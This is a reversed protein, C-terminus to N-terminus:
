VLENEIEETFTRVINRQKSRITNLLGERPKMRTTGEELYKAHEATNGFILQNENSAFGIGKRYVGTDNAGTEGAASSRHTGYVVGTKNKDLTQRKFERRLDVGIKHFAIKLGTKTNQAINKIDDLVKKNSSPSIFEIRM